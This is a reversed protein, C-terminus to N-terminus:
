RRGVAKVIERGDFAGGAKGGHIGVPGNGTLHNGAYGGTVGHIHPADYNAPDYEDEHACGALFTILFICLLSLQLYKKMPERRNAALM